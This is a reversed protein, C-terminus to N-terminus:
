VAVLTREPELFKEWEVPLGRAANMMAASILRHRALRQDCAALTAAAQALAYSSPEPPPGDYLRPLPNAKLEIM